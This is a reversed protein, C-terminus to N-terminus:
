FKLSFFLVFYFLIFYFLFHMFFCSVTAHYRNADDELVWRSAHAAETLAARWRQVRKLIKLNTQFQEEQRTFAEWIAETQKQIDSPDMHYFIPILAHGKTNKCHVIEVLKDLCWCSSAYGKSFVVISIRSRRIKNLVATFINEGGPLVEKDLFTLIGARKLAAYLYRTFNKYTDEGKFSLFVDYDYSPPELRKSASQRTQPAM